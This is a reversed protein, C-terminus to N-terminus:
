VCLSLLGAEWALMCFPAAGWALGQAPDGATVLETRGTEGM